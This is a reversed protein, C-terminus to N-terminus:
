KLPDPEPETHPRTPALVSATIATVRELSPRRPGPLCILADLAALAAVARAQESIDREASRMLCTISRENLEDIRTALQEIRRIAPDTLLRVVDAHRIRTAALAETLADLGPEAGAQLQDHALLVAGLDDLYVVVLSRLLTEKSPYHYYLAAKTVDLGAAIERLPTADVGNALFRELARARIRQGMTHADADDVGDM